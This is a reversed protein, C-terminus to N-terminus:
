QHSELHQIPSVPTDLMTLLAELDRRFPQRNDDLYQTLGYNAFIRAMERDGISYRIRALKLATYQKNCSKGLLLIQGADIQELTATLLPSEPSAVEAFLPRAIALYVAASQRVANDISDQTGDHSWWQDETNFETMRCRLDCFHEKMTKPDPDRGIATPMGRPHVGLNVYFRGGGMSGQVNYVFLFKDTIRCYTTGSGRFGDERLHPALYLRISKELSARNDSM